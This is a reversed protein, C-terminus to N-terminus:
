RSENTARVLEKKSASLQQQYVPAVLLIPGVKLPTEIAWQAPGELPRAVGDRDGERRLTHV